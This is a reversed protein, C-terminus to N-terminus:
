PKEGVIVFMEDTDVREKPMLGAAQMMNALEDMPPLVTETRGELERHLENIAERSESHAIALRGSKKLGGSLRRLTAEPNLLHPFMSYLLIADYNGNTPTENIDEVRFTVNPFTERPFKRRAVDIMGRSHDVADITGEDGIRKLLFPIMVGTGTGGDLVTMGPKLGLLDVILSVKAPDHETWEDWSEAREDFFEPQFPDSTKM